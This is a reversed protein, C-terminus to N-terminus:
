GIAFMLEAECALEGNVTAKATGIGVPGRLKTIEVELRLVDGPIVKRKFRAKNIGAFYATKGKFSDQSLLAVAGTQALAEIILVGPMVHEEPFHGCFFQENASVCKIGVARHGTELEEIQDVLLMPYRHPIIESIQNSNLIM